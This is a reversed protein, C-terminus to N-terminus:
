EDFNNNIKDLSDCVSHQRSRTRGIIIGHRESLFVGPFGILRPFTSVRILMELLVENEFGGQKGLGGGGNPIM